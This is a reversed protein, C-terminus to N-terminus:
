IFSSIWSAFWSLGLLTLLVPSTLFGMVSLLLGIFAWSMQRMFLAVVSCILALPVFITASTFIGLFGFGVAFWGIIPNEASPAPQGPTEPGQGPQHNNEGPPNEDEPQDSGPDSATDPNLSLPTKTM